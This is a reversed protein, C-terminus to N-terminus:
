RASPASREATSPGVGLHCGYCRTSAYTEYRARASLHFGEERSIDDNPTYRAGCDDCTHTHPPDLDEM